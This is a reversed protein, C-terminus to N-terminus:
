RLVDNIGAQRISNMNRMVAYEMPVSCFNPRERSHSAMAPSLMPMAKAPLNNGCNATNAVTM